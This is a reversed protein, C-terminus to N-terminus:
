LGATLGLQTGEILSKLNTSVDVLISSALVDVLVSIDVLQRSFDFKLLGGIM